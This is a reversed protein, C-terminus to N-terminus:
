NVIITGIGMRMSCSFEYTGKEKPTFDLTDSSFKFTKKLGLESIVITRYCGQVSDDLSISVPQGVKVYITNPYYNYNKMSLVVKQISESNNGNGSINGEIKPKMNSFIFFALVGILIIVILVFITTNKM